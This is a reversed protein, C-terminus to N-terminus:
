SIQWNVISISVFAQILAAILQGQLLARPPILRYHRIKQDTIYNQAQCDINYGYAKLIMLATGNGPLTHGVILEVLVNLGLSFGTISYVITIPILFVFNIGLAFFLGWVPMNTSLIGLVTSSVVLIIFFWFHPVEPYHAMLRCYPDDDYKFNSENRKVM